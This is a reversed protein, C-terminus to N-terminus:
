VLVRVDEIPVGCPPRGGAEFEVDLASGPLFALVRGRGLEPHSFWEVITRGPVIGASGGKRQVPGGVIRQVNPRRTRKTKVKRRIARKMTKGPHMIKRLAKL